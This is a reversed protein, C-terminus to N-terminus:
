EKPSFDLVFADDLVDKLEAAFAKHDPHVLYADRDAKNKFTVIWCHTFGKDHNETSINTGWELKQIVPIKSPLAAFDAEVKKIAEPKADAKFKFAVVHRISEDAAFTAAATLMIALAFTLLSKM